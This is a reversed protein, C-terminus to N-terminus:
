SLAVKALRTLRQVEALGLAGGNVRRRISTTEGLMSDPIRDEWWAVCAKLASRPQELLEPIGVLDQGILKGVREYNARGTIQIMGRGRFRWGDEAMTNGLQKLGWAGGYVTNAIARENAFQKGDIRGYALAQAETIRHEGFLPVLVTAKYNLSEVLRELGGSEHLIEPLFDILDADDKSFAGEHVEDEFVPGWAKATNSSVGCARLIAAWQVATRAKM